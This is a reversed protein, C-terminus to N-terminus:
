ETVLVSISSLLFTAIYICVFIDKLPGALFKLDMNKTISLPVHICVHLVDNGSASLYPISTSIQLHRVGLHTINWIFRM